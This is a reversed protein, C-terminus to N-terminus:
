IYVPRIIKMHEIDGTDEVDGTDGHGVHEQKLPKGPFGFLVHLRLFILLFYTDKSSIYQRHITSGVFHGTSSISKSLLTTRLFVYSEIVQSTCVARVNLHSKM